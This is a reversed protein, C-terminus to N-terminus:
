KEIFDTEKSWETWGGTYVALRKWGETNMQDSLDHSLHCDGGDCYVVALDAKPFQALSDHYQAIKEFPINVAGPIHGETYLKPDRADIFHINEKKRKSFLGMCMSYTIEYPKDAAVFASDPSVVDAGAFAIPVLLESPKPYGWFPVPQNQTLHMGTGVIVALGLMLLLQKSM